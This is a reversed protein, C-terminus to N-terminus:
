RQITVRLRLAIVDAMPAPRRLCNIADLLLALASGAMPIVVVVPVDSREIPTTVTVCTIVDRHPDRGPDHAVVIRATACGRTM